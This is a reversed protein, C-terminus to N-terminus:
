MNYGTERVTKMYRNDQFRPAAVEHLGLPRDLGTYPNSQRLRYVFNASHWMQERTTESLPEPFDTNLMIGNM